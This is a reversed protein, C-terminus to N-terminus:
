EMLSISNNEPKSCHVILFNNNTIIKLIDLYDDLLIKPKEKINFSINKKNEVIFDFLDKNEEVIKKLINHNFEFKKNKDEKIIPYEDYNTSNLLQLIINLSISSSKKLGLFNSEIYFGGENGMYNDMDEKTNFPIKGGTYYSYYRRLFHGFIEHICFVLIRGLHLIKRNFGHTNVMLIKGPISNIMITLDTPNTVANDNRNFLPAFYIRKLIENQVEIRDFHYKINNYKKGYHDRFFNKASKSCLIRRIIIDLSSKINQYFELSNNSKLIINEFLDSEINHNFQKEILKLIQKNFCSIKYSNETTYSYNNKNIRRKEKIKFKLKKSTTDYRLKFHINNSIQFKDIKEISKLVEEETVPKGKLFSKIKDLQLKSNLSNEDFIIQSVYRFYYIKDDNLNDFNEKDLFLLLDNILDSYLNYKEYIEDIKDFLQLCLEYFFYNNEGIECSQNFKYIKKLNLNKKAEETYKSNKHKLIFEFTNMLSKKYNVYKLNKRIEGDKIMLTNKDFENKDVIISAKNIKEILIQWYDNNEKKISNLKDIAVQMYINQIKKNTQDLYLLDEISYQNNENKYENVLKEAVLKKEFLSYDDYDKKYSDIEKFDIISKNKYGENSLTIKMKKTETNNEEPESVDMSEFSSDNSDEKVENSNKNNSFEM